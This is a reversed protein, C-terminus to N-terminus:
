FFFVCFFCERVCAIWVWVSSHWGILQNPLNSNQTCPIRCPDFACMISCVQQLFIWKCFKACKDLVSFCLFFIRFNDKATATAAAFFLITSGASKRRMKIALDCECVRVFCACACAACTWYINWPLSQHITQQCTKPKATLNRLLYTRVSSFDVFFFVQVFFFFFDQINRTNHTTFDRQAAARVRQRWLARTVDVHM